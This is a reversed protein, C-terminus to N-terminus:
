DLRINEGSEWHVGLQLLRMRISQLSSRRVHQLDSRSITGALLVKNCGPELVNIEVFDLQPLSDFLNGVAAETESLLQENFASVKQEEL